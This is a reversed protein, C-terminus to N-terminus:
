TSNQLPLYKKIARQPIVRPPVRLLETEKCPQQAKPVRHLGSAAAMELVAGGEEGLWGWHASAPRGMPDRVQCERREGGTAALVADVTGEGGDAMPRLLIDAEPFVQRWGRAIAAAVEPASLSEKFSDPAIVVKM